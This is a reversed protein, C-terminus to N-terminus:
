RSCFLDNITYINRALANNNEVYASTLRMIDEKEDADKAMLNGLGDMLNVLTAPESVEIRGSMGWWFSRIWYEGDGSVWVRRGPYGAELRNCFEEDIIDFLLVDIYQREASGCMINISDNSLSGKWVQCGCLTLLYGLWVAECRKTEISWLRFNRM